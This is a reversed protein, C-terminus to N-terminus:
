LKFYGKWLSKYRMLPDYKLATLALRGKNLLGYNGYVDQLRSAYNMYVFGNGLGRQRAVRDFEDLLKKSEGELKEDLSREDWEWSLMVLFLPGDSPKLGLANGGNRQMMQIVGVTIPQIVMMPQLRVGEPTEAVIRDVFEKWMAVFDHILGASTAKVAMVAFNQRAGLRGESARTLGAVKDLRTNNMYVLQPPVQHLPKFVDPITKKSPHFQDSLVIFGGFERAYAMIFYHHAAPDQLNGNVAFSQLVDVYTANVSPHLILSSAWLEGQEFSNLEFKTVIGFNSGGGGRLAWFLDSNKTATATIIDGSAVVIEYLKVNDCAWGHLGSFYSIGGGLLLGSVGVNSSRGGIVALGLPDLVDAVDVWRNGPGVTVTKRDPSITIQKMYVLDITVGDQINSGGPYGTHGGSKVTFPVNRTILLKVAKSVHQATQPTVYCRPRIEAQRLSWYQSSQEYLTTNPFTVLNPLTSNLTECINGPNNFGPLIAFALGPLALGALVLDLRGM